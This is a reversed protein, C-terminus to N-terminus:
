LMDRASITGQLVCWTPEVYVMDGIRTRSEYPAIPGDAPLGSLDADACIADYYDKMTQGNFIQKILYQGDGYRALRLLSRRGVYVTNCLRDGSVTAVGGWTVGWVACHHVAFLASVRISTYKEGDQVAGRRDFRWAPVPLEYRWDGFERVYTRDVPSRSGYSSFRIRYYDRADTEPKVQAGTSVDLFPSVGGCQSIESAAEPRDSSVGNCKWGFNSTILNDLTAVNLVASRNTVNASLCARNSILDYASLMQEDASMRDGAYAVNSGPVFQSAIMEGFRDSSMGHRQREHRLDDESYWRGDAFETRGAEHFGVGLVANARRLQSDVDGRSAMMKRVDTSAMSGITMRKLGPSISGAYEAWGVCEDVFCLQELSLCRGKAMFDSGSIRVGDVNSFEYYGNSQIM